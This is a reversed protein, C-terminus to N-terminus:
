VYSPPSHAPFFHLDKGEPYLYVDREAEYRFQDASLCETRHDMDPIPILYSHGPRLITVLNEETGCKKDRTVQRPWLKAAYAHVGSSVRAQTSLGTRAKPTVLAAVM